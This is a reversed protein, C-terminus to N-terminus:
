CPSDSSACSAKVSTMALANSTQETMCASWSQFTLLVRTSVRTPEVDWHLGEVALRGPSNQPGPTSDIIGSLVPLHSLVRIIIPLQLAKNFCQYGVRRYSFKSAKAFSLSFVSSFQNHACIIACKSPTCCWSPLVEWWRKHLFNLLQNKLLHVARCHCNGRCGQAGDDLGLSQQHLITAVHAASVHILLRMLRNFM